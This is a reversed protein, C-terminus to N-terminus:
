SPLQGREFTQLNFISLGLVFIFLTVGIASAYGLNLNEFALDYIYYVLTTSSRIPGGQTMVFIETFVKLASISSLITVLAFAPLLLPATIYRHQQLFGSGDLAAAEYLEDPIAQLSALYIVMYYGLGKWITVIMVAFIAWSPDSLWSVKPINFLSELLYNLLGKEAYIWKWAISVVVMSIVVPLYIAARFFAIGKLPRYAIIAIMFPFLVLPPVVGITYILTNKLASWFIPDHILQRYNDLGVWVPPSLMNYSTMSLYFIYFTPAIFFILLIVFSPFLFWYPALRQVFNAKNM